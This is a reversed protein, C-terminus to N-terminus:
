NGMGRRSRPTIEESFGVQGLIRVELNTKLPGPGIVVELM